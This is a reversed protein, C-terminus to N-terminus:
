NKYFFLNRSYNTNGNFFLNDIPSIRQEDTHYDYLTIYYVNQQSTCFQSGNNKGFFSINYDGKRRKYKIVFKKPSDRYIKISGHYILNNLTDYTEFTNNALIKLTFGNTVCDYITTSIQNSRGNSSSGTYKWTGVYPAIREEYGKKCGAFLFLVCLFLLIKDKM